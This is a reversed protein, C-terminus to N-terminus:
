TIIYRVKIHLHCLLKYKMGVQVYVLVHLGQINLTFLYFQVFKRNEHSLTHVLRHLLNKFKFEVTAVLM